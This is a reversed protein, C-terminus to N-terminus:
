CTISPRKSMTVTTSRYWDVTRRLGEELDVVPEYGFAERAATIDALSDRVDGIRGRDYLPEGTFGTIPKLMEFVQTLTHRRGMAVNFTRGAVNEAPAAAAKLNASVVNDVYTFDRSQEGDGFITPTKGDIMNTIFKSLVGSYQSTADQRPGFVNFYRLSVTELGYVCHFSAAYLEGTLKQVAYPSLPNAKMEERKPLVPTNGYASSSGAYVVRRVGSERAALFVNLTGDINARHSTLPDAVSKPVSPIAAQHLVYDVDKFARVLGDLDNLDIEEFRIADWYGDLNERKGTKFNDLGIVDEGRELLARVLASGIFGAAGTVLYTAM